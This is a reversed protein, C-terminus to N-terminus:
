VIVIIGRIDLTDYVLSLFIEVCDVWNLCISEARSTDSNGLSDKRLMSEMLMTFSGDSITRPNNSLKHLKGLYTTLTRRAM